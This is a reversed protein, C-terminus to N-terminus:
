GGATGILFSLMLLAFVGSTILVFIRDRQYFFVFASVFVRLVPTAILLLLGLMVIGRGEFRAVSRLVDTVNRLPNPRNILQVLLDPSTLLESREVFSLVAGLVIVAFSTFVGIRLLRSILLEVTRAREDDSAAASRNM